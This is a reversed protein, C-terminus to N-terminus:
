GNDLRLCNDPRGAEALGLSFSVSTVSDTAQSTAKLVVVLLQEDQQM